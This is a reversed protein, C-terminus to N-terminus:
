TRINRRHWALVRSWPPEMEPLQEKFRMIPHHRRSLHDALMAAALIDYM